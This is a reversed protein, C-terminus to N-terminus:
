TTHDYRGWREIAWSVGLCIAVVVSWNAFPRLVPGITRQAPQILAHLWDNGFFKITAVGAIALLVILSRQLWIEFREDTAQARSEIRAATQVAFDAPLPELPPHRLARAILRYQMVRPDDNAADAGRQEELVAREQAAWESQFQENEYDRSKNV